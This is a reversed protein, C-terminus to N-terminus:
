EQHGSANRMSNDASSFLNNAGSGLLRITGIVIIIFVALLVAYEVVDQGEEDRVM